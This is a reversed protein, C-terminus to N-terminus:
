TSCFFFSKRVMYLADWPAFPCKPNDIPTRPYNTHVVHLVALPPFFIILKRKQFDKQLNFYLRNRDYHKPFVLSESANFFFHRTATIATHYFEFRNKKEKFLGRNILIDTFQKVVLLFGGNVLAM